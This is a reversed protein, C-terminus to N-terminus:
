YMLVSHSKSMEGCSLDMQLSLFDSVVENGKIKGDRTFDIGDDGLGKRTTTESAQFLLGCRLNPNEKVWAHVQDYAACDRSIACRTHWNSLVIARLSRWVAHGLYSLMVACLTAGLLVGHWSALFNKISNSLLQENQIVFNELPPVHSIISRWNTLLPWLAVSSLGLDRLSSFIDVTSM